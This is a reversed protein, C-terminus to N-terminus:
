TSTCLWDLTMKTLHLFIRSLASDLLARCRPGPFGFGLTQCCLSLGFDSWVRSQDQALFNLWDRIGVLVEM